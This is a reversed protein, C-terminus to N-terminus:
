REGFVRVSAPCEPSCYGGPESLCSVGGRAAGRCFRTPRSRQARYLVICDCSGVLRRPPEGRRLPSRFEGGLLLQPRFPSSPSRPVLIAFVPPGAATARGPARRTPQLSPAAPRLAVPERRAVRIEVKSRLCAVGPEGAAPAAPPPFPRAPTESGGRGAVSPFATPARPVIPLPSRQAGSHRRRGAPSVSAGAARLSQAGSPGAAAAAARDATSM